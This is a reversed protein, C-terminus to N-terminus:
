PHSVPHECSPLVLERYRWVGSAAAGVPAGTRTQLLQRLLEGTREPTRHRVELLGGCGPCRTAADIELVENGCSDCHQWSQPRETSFNM